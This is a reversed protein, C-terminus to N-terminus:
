VYRSAISDKGQAGFTSKKSTRRITGETAWDISNCSTRSVVAEGTPVNDRHCDLKTSTIVQLGTVVRGNPGPDCGEVCLRAASSQVVQRGAVVVQSWSAGGTVM